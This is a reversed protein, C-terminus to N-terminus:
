KDNTKVKNNKIGKIWALFMKFIGKGKSVQLINSNKENISTGSAGSRAFAPPMNGRWLKNETGNSNLSKKYWYTCITNCTLGTRESVNRFAQALNQPSKSIEEIMIKKLNKPAQKNISRINLEPHTKRLYKARSTLSYKSRSLMESLKNWTTNNTDNIYKLVIADEEKTYRKRVQKQAKAKGTCLKVNSTDIFEANFGNNLLYHARVNIAYITRDMMTAAEKCADSKKKHRKLCDILVKEEAKTWRKREM